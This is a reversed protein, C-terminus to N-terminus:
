DFVKSVAKGESGRWGVESTVRASEKFVEDKSLEYGKDSM